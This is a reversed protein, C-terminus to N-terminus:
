LNEVEGGGAEGRREGMEPSAKKKVATTSGEGVERRELYLTKKGIM